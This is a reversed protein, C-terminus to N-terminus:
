LKWEWLTFSERAFWQKNKQHTKKEGKGNVKWLIENRLEIKYSYNDFQM